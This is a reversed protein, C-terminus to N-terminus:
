TKLYLFNLIIRISYLEHHENHNALVLMSSCKGQNGAVRMKGYRAKCPALLNKVSAILGTCGNVKSSVADACCHMRQMKGFTLFFMNQMKANRM